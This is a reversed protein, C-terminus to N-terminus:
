EAITLMKHLVPLIVLCIHGILLFITGPMRRRARNEYISKLDPM